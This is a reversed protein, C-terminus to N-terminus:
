KKPEPKKTRCSRNQDNPDTICILEGIAADYDDSRYVERIKRVEDLLVTATEASERPSHALVAFEYFVHIGGSFPPTYSCPHLSVLTYGFNNVNNDIAAQLAENCEAWNAYPGVVSGAGNSYDATGACCPRQGSHRALPEPRSRCYTIQEHDFEETPRNRDLSPTKGVEVHGHSRPSDV